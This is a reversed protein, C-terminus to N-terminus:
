IKMILWLKHGMRLLLRYQMPSFKKKYFYSTLFRNQNFQLKENIGKSSPLCAAPFPFNSWDTESWSRNCLKSSKNKRSKFFFFWPGVSQCSFQMFWQSVLRYPKGFWSPKSLVKIQFWGFIFIDSFEQIQGSGSEIYSKWQNSILWIM